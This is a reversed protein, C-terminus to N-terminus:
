DMIRENFEETIDVIELTKSKLVNYNFETIKDVSKHWETWQADTFTHLRKMENIIALMRQDDNYITDYTEDIHPHFTQYGAKRLEALQGPRSLLIIPMGLAIQRYTKETLFHCDASVTDPSPNTTLYATETVVFYHVAEYLLKDQEHQAKSIDVCNIDSWFEEDDESHLRVIPTPDAEWGQVVNNLTVNSWMTRWYMQKYGNVLENRWAKISDVSIPDDIDVGQSVYGSHILGHHKLLGLFIIRFDRLHRNFCLFDKQKPQDKRVTFNTDIFGACSEEWTNKVFVRTDSISKPMEYELAGLTRDSNFAGTIFATQTTDDGLYPMLNAFTSLLNPSVGEDGDYAVIVDNDGLDCKKSIDKGLLPWNNDTNLMLSHLHTLVTIRRAHPFYERLKTCFPSGQNNYSNDNSLFAIGYDALYQVNLEMDTLLIHTGSSNLM